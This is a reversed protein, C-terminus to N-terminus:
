CGCCSCGGGSAAPCTASRRGSGNAPSASGSPWRRRPSRGSASRPSGRSRRAGGGAGARRAAARRGGPVPVGAGVTKGVVVRGPTRSCRASWCGLLTTKGAGNVGVLGIRDGPGVHWTSTRSCCRPRRRAPRRAVDEVDYVTKGLRRPPSATLEVTDRPPPVDAILAKAAEIRFKPKRRVPRRAAACGPWSRACWTRGGSRPPRAQRAREARALVYASYGGEYRQVRRRRGGM